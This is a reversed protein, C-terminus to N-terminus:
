GGSTDCTKREICHHAQPAQEHTLGERVGFRWYACIPCKGPFLREFDTLMQETARANYRAIARYSLWVATLSVIIVGLAWLTGSM